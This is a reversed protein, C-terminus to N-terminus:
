RRILPLYTLEFASLRGKATDTTVNGATDRAEVIVYINQITSPPQVVTEYLGDGNGDTLKVQQWTKGDVTYTATVSDLGGGSNDIVRASIRVSLAAPGIRQLAGSPPAVDIDSILPPVDDGLINAPAALPDRYSVEFVMSYFRRLQGSESNLARLQAPYVILGDRTLVETASLYQTHQEAYPQEPLWANLIEMPPDDQQQAYVMDTVPTTVHPNFESLDPAMTAQVLRVGTPVPPAGPGSPQLTIDYALAPMVPRGIAMQAESTVHTTVGPLFSDEVDSYVQPVKEAAPPDPDFTNTFTILRTFVGPALRPPPPDTPIKKPQPDFFGGYTPNSPNPVTVRIFPLGYLTWELLAKEDFASFSGPASTQLYVRKARALSEGIPAGDYGGAQNRTDRGIEKTFLLSLRESYGILDSDGYGYGTTGIWNGGQKLAAAPWDAQYLLQRSGIDQNLVSLGSHCGVSYVLSDSYFENPNDVQHFYADSEYGPQVTPALLRQATFVGGSVDAPIAQYHTFHGNISM